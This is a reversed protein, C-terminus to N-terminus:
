RVVSNRVAALFEPNVVSGVKETRTVILDDRDLLILDNTHNCDEWLEGQKRRRSIGLSWRQHLRSLLAPQCSRTRPDGVRKM